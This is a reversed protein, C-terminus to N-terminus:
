ISITPFSFRCLPIVVTTYLILTATTCPLLLMYTYIYVYVTITQKDKVIVTLRIPSDNYM